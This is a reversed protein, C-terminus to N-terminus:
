LVTMKGEMYHEGAPFSIVAVAATQILHPDLNPILSIDDIEHRIM